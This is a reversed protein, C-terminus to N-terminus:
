GGYRKLDKRGIENEGGLISPSSIIGSPWHMANLQMKSDQCDDCYEGNVLHWETLSTVDEPM